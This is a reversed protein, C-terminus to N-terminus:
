SRLDPTFYKNYIVSTSVLHMTYIVCLSSYGGRPEIYWKIKRYKLLSLSTFSWCLYCFTLHLKSQHSKKLVSFVSHCLTVAQASNVVLRLFKKKPNIQWNKDRSSLKLCVCLCVCVRKGGGTMSFTMRWNLSHDTSLKTFHALHPLGQALPHQLAATANLRCTMPEISARKYISKQTEVANASYHCCLSM